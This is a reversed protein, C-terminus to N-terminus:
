NIWDEDVFIEPSKVFVWSEELINKEFNDILKEKM